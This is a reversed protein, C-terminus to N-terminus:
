VSHRDATHESMKEDDQQTKLSYIVMRQRTPGTGWAITVFDFVSSSKLKCSAQETVSSKEGNDGVEVM